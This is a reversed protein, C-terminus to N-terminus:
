SKRAPPIEPPNEEDEEDPGGASLRSQLYLWCAVDLAPWVHEKGGPIGPPFQGSEIM